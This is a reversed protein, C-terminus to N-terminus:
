LTEWLKRSDYEPVGWEEDHYARLLPDGEAWACRHVAPPSRGTLRAESIRHPHGVYVRGDAWTTGDAAQSTPPLRVADSCQPTHRPNSSWTRSAQSSPDTRRPTARSRKGNPTRVSARGPM